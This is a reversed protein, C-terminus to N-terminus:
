RETALGLRTLPLVPSLEGHAPIHHIGVPAVEPLPHQAEVNPRISKAMLHDSGEDSGEDLDTEPLARRAVHPAEDQGPVPVLGGLDGRWM